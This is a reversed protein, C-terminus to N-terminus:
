KGSAELEEKLNRCEEALPIGLETAIQLADNCYERAQELQDTKYHLDTLNKLIEAQLSRNGTEQCIGLANHLSELAESYRELNILAEGLGSLAHCESRRSGIERAISLKQAQLEVAESYRGLACYENGLNGLAIAEGQRYGVDRAIALYQQHYDIARQYEGLDSYALGLNGLAIGEGTRDSIERSIVLAQQHCEIAQQHEGLNGYVLGLNTLDAAEGMGDSLERSIVLAQQHCKIAQQYDGLEEYIIGLNGLANGEGQRDGIEQAITLGKQYAVTAQSYDALCWYALGMGNQCVVKVKPSARNSLQKCLNLQEQYYGWEFLLWHTASKLPPKVPKMFLDSAAEWDEVECYHHFAELYGRVTELNPIDLAPEYATLWLEAARHEAAQWTPINIKLLDYAVNRILNHQRLPITKDAGLWSDPKWDEQALERSILLSLTAQQQVESHEPLMALWFSDPVPRRYVASRCLLQYADNPLRELSIKVRQKVERQLKQRSFRVHHKAELEAFRCQEWYRAVDGGCANIDAATVRLVLPHGEYLKGIRELYGQSDPDLPLGFKQFLTLQEVESLGRLAERHWFQPYFSGITDLEGPIDQTTIILQSHCQNGALVQQLLDQWLSDQFDSWGEQDNGILLHELSDIQLRYPQKSLLQVLHALLNKPDKQDELTPEEGLARLLAAGSSLFDPTLGGNNLNLRCFQKGDELEAVLREALATKGIGTIGTIALIRCPSKLISLLSETVASREVWSAQNYVAPSISTAVSTSAIPSQNLDAIAKWDEINIAQCIAIFNARRIPERSWFRQLTKLSVDAAEAWREDHKNWRKQIRAPDILDDLAQQTARLSASM